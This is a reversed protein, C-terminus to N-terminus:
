DCGGQGAYHELLGGAGMTRGFGGKKYGGFPAGIVGVPGHTNISVM